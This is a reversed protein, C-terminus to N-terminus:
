FSVCTSAKVRLVAEQRFQRKYSAVIEAVANESQTDNPHVLHLVHTSERVISGDAGRWQGSAKSVTLGQPFKPTVTLELFRAWQESTVLGDPMATGFYLSDQLALQENSHCSSGQLPACATGALVCAVSVEVRFVSAGRM